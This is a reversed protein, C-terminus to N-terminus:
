ENMADRYSRSYVIALCKPRALMVHVCERSGFLPRESDLRCEDIRSTPVLRDVCRRCFAATDRRARYRVTRRTYGHLPLRFMLRNPRFRNLAVAFLPWWCDDSWNTSCIAASSSDPTAAPHMGISQRAPRWRRLSGYAFWQFPRCWPLPVLRDLQDTHRCDGPPRAIDGSMTVIRVATACWMELDNLKAATSPM